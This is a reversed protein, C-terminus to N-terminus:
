LSCLSFVESNRGLIYHNFVYSEMDNYYKIKLVFVLSSRAGQNKNYLENKVNKSFSFNTKTDIFNM